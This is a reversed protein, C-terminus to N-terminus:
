DLTLYVANNKATVGTGLAHGIMNLTFANTTAATYVAGAAAPNAAALASGVTTSGTNLAACVGRSQIWGFTTLGSGNSAIPALAVGVISGTTTTVPSQIVGSYANQQLDIRSSTTLAVQIPEALTITMVGASAVAAHGKILYAFGNGPATSIIAYGGSYQSASAATAGLTVIITTDGIAQAQTPTLTVHNAVVAPSQLVNGTVLTAGVPQGTAGGASPQVSAYRFTRGDNAYAKEGLTHQQTNSSTFIDHATIQVTPGLTAM